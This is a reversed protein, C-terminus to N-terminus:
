KKTYVALVSRGRIRGARANILPKVLPFTLQSFLKGILGDNVVGVYTQYYYKYHQPQLPQVVIKEVYLEPFVWAVARLAHEDWLGMTHPPLNLVDETAKGLFGRNNPVSLLLRGGKRLANVAPRILDKVPAMQALVQFACVVDYHNPLQEAHPGIAERGFSLNPHHLAISTAVQDNAILGHARVGRGTLDSLFSSNIANIELVNDTPAVFKRSEEQEWNQKDTQQTLQPWQAQFTSHDGSITFPYYFRYGTDQCRFVRVQNVGTFFASVNIQYKVQYLKVIKEVPILQELELRDSGTLPSLLPM